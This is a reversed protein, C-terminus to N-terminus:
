RILDEGYGRTEGFNTNVYPVLRVFSQVISHMRPKDPMDNITYAEDRTKEWIQYQMEYKRVPHTYGIEMMKLIVYETVAQKSEYNDPIMPYGDDDVPMAEYDIEFTVSEESTKFWGPEIKFTLNRERFPTTYTEGYNFDGTGYGIPSEGDSVANLIVLDCPIPARFNSSTLKLNKTITQGCYGIAELAEGMWEIADPIMEASFSKFDRFLKDIITKTSVLRYITM